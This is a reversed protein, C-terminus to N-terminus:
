NWFRDTCQFASLFYKNLNVYHINYFFFVSSASIVNQIQLTAKAALASSFKPVSLIFRHNTSSYNQKISFYHENQHFVKSKM